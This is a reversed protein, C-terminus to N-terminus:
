RKFESMMGLAEDLTSPPNFNFFSRLGRMRRERLSLVYIIEQRQGEIPMHHDTTYAGCKWQVNTLIAVAVVNIALLRQVM